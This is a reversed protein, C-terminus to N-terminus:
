YLLCPPNKSVDERSRASPTNTYTHVHIPVHDPVSCAQNPYWLPCKIAYAKDKGRTHTRALAHLAM